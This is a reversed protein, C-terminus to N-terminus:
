YDLIENLSPFNFFTFKGGDKQIELKEAIFPTQQCIVVSFM